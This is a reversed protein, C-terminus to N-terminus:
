GRDYTHAKHCAKCLPELTAMGDHWDVWSKHVTEDVFFPESGDPYKCDVTLDGEFSWSAVIDKFDPIHNMEEAPAGCRCVAGDPLPRRVMERMKTILNRNATKAWHIRRLKDDAFEVDPMLCYGYGLYPHQTGSDDVAICGAEKGGYNPHDVFMIAVIKRPFVDPHRQYLAALFDFGDDGPLYSCGIIALGLREKKIAAKSNAAIPGFNYKM